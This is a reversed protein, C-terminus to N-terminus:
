DPMKVYPNNEFEKKLEEYQKMRRETLALEEQKKKAADREARIKIREAQKIKAAESAEKILQHYEKLYKDVEGVGEDLYDDRYLDIGDKLIVVDQYGTEGCDLILNQFCLTTLREILRERDLNHEYVFDSPYVAETCGRYYNSSNAKYAILTYM